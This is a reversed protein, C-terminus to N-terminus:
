GPPITPYVDVGGAIQVVITASFVLIAGLDVLSARPLRANATRTTTTM